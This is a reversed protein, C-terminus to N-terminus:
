PRRRSAALPGWDAAHIWVPLATGLVNRRDVPGFYRSDFSNPVTSLVFLQAANLRKCGSWRPLPRRSVDAAMAYAMARGNVAVISGTRCVIDGASAAVRKILLARAQLYHRVDALSLFPQPLHVVALMGAAPPRSALWYLGLPASPSVNWLLTPANAKPCIVALLSLGLTAVVRM